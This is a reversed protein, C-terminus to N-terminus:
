FIFFPWNAEALRLSHNLSIYKFRVQFNQLL